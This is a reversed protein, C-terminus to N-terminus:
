HRKWNSLKTTKLIIVLTESGYLGMALAAPRCPSYKCFCCRSGNQIIYKTFDNDQESM